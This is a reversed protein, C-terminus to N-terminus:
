IQKWIWRFVSRLSYMKILHRTKITNWHHNSSGSSEHMGALSKKQTQFPSTKWITWFNWQHDRYKFINPFLRCSFVVARNTNKSQITFYKFFKYIISNFLLQDGQSIYSNKSKWYPKLDERDVASRRVTKDLLSQVPKPRSSIYRKIFALSKISNPMSTKKM